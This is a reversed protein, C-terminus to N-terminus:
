NWELWKGVLGRNRWGAARRQTSQDLLKPQQARLVESRQLGQRQSWGVKIAAPEVRGQAFDREALQQCCPCHVVQVVEALVREGHGPLSAILNSRPTGIEVRKMPLM